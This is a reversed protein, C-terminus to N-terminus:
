PLKTELDAITALRAEYPLSKFAGGLRNLSAEYRQAALQNVFPLLQVQELFQAPTLPPQGSGANYLDVRDQLADTQEQNLTISTTLKM